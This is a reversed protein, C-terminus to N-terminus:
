ERVVKINTLTKEKSLKREIAKELEANLNRLNANEVELKQIKAKAEKLKEYVSDLSNAWNSELFSNFYDVSAREIESKVQSKLQKNQKLLEANRKSRDAKIAAKRLAFAKELDANLEDIRRTINPQKAPTLQKRHVKAVMCVATGQILRERKKVLEVEGRKINQIFNLCTKYQTNVANFLQEQEATEVWEPYQEVKNIKPSRSPNNASYFAKVDDLDGMVM